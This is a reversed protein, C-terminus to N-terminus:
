MLSALSSTTRSVPQRRVVEERAENIYDTLETESWFVSNADHLLRQVELLYSSLTAM